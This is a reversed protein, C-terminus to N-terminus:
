SPTAFGSGLNLRTCTSPASDLLYQDNLGFVSLDPQDELFDVFRGFGGGSPHAHEYVVAVMGTPVKISSVVDNMHLVLLSEGFEGSAVSASAGQFNAEGYITVQAM